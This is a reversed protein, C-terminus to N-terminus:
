RSINNTFYDNPDNPDNQPPETSKAFRGPDRM